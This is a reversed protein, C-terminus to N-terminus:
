RSLEQVSVVDAQKHAFRWEVLVQQVELQGDQAIMPVHSDAQTVRLKGRVCIEGVM